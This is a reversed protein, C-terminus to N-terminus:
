VGAPVRLLSQPMEWISAVNAKLCVALLARPKSVRGPARPMVAPGVGQALPSASNYDRAAKEWLPSRSELATTRLELQLSIHGLLKLVCHYRTM